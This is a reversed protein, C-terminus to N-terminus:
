WCDCIEPSVIDTPRKEEEAAADAVANNREQYELQPHLVHMSSRFLCCLNRLFLLERGCGGSWAVM